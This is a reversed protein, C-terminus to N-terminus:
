FSKLVEKCVKNLKKLSESASFPTARREEGEKKKRRRREREEEEKERERPRHGEREEKKKEVEGYWCLPKNHADGCGGHGRKYPLPLTHCAIDGGRWPHNRGMGVWYWAEM